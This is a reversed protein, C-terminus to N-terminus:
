NLYLQPMIKQYCDDCIIALDDDKVNTIEKGFNDECEKIAEEDSWEKEFIGNCVYCKYENDKM